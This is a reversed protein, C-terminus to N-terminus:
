WSNSVFLMCLYVALLALFFFGFWGDVGEGRVLYLLQPLTLYTECCRKLCVLVVCLYPKKCLASLDAQFVGVGSCLIPLPSSWQMIFNVVICHLM